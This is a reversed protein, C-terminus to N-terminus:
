EGIGLGEFKLTRVVAGMREPPKWCEYLACFLLSFCHVANMEIYLVGYAVSFMSERIFYNLCILRSIVSQVM